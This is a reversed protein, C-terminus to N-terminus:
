QPGACSQKVRHIVQAFEDFHADLDGKAYPSDKEWASSNGYIWVYPSREEYALRLRAEFESPSYRATKDSGSKGLPWLGLAIPVSAPKIGSEVLSRQYLGRTFAAILDPRASNYSNETAIVLQEFHAEILGQWFRGSLAYAQCVQQVYPPCSYALVEPFVFVTAQPYEERIAKGIDRGLAYVREGKDPITSDENWWGPSYVEMDLALGKLGAFKALHAAQRFNEVGRAPAGPDKWDFPNYLAPKIFNATVGYTSYTVQFRKLGQYLQSTEDHGVSDTWSGMVFNLIFGDVGITQGWYKAMKEDNQVRIDLGDFMLLKPCAESPPKAFAPHLGIIAVALLIGIAGVSRYPCSERATGM